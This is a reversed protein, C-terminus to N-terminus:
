NVLVLFLEEEFSLTRSYGFAQGSSTSSTRSQKNHFFKSGRWRRITQPGDGLRTALYERLADFVTFNPFNTYFQFLRDNSKVNELRLLQSRLAETECRIQELSMLENAVDAPLAAWSTDLATLVYDHGSSALFTPVYVDVEPQKVPRGLSAGPPVIHPHRHSSVLLRHRIHHWTKPLAMYGAATSTTTSRPRSPKSHPFTSPVYGDSGPVDTKKGTTLVFHLWKSLEM